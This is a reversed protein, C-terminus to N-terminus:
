RSNTWTPIAHVAPSPICPSKKLARWLCNWTWPRTRKWIPREFMVLDDMQLPVDADYYVRWAAKMAAQQPKKDIDRWQQYTTIGPTAALWGGDPFGPTGKPLVHGEFLPRVQAVNTADLVKGGEMAGADKYPLPQGAADLFRYARM